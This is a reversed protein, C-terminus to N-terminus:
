PSKPGVRFLVSGAFFGLSVGSLHGILSVQPTVLDSLLQFVVVLVILRLRDRAIKAKELRWGKLQIAAEAGVMGLVAGSAGVTIQWPAQPNLMAITAVTFMSGLGCFFYCCLFKRYGLTAEVLAGFVYLGLMNAALHLWGAHLFIATMLRWWEGAFVAEPLLAGLRYLVELDNTGGMATSFGFVVLNLGILSYTAYSKKATLATWSNYRFEQAIALRSQLLFLRAPETLVIVPDIHPAALRYDIAAQLPRDGFRRLDAFLALATTANGARLEATALWFQRTQESYSIFVQQLLRQVQDVQGCFAMLYLRGTNLLQPSPNRGLTQELQEMGQLLANLDGVEGLSRLYNLWLWPEKQLMLQPVCDEVWQQLGTWDASMRHLIVTANRGTPTNASQYQSILQKAEELRGQQALHLGKLLHPYEVYGDAPHLWKVLNAWKWARQYREQSVLRNVHAFGVIPLLILVVWLSGSILGAWDPVTFFSVSLATLVFGAVLLWGRSLQQGRILMVVCTFLVLQILFLNFTM